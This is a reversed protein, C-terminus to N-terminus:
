KSAAAARFRAIREAFEARRRQLDVLQPGRDADAAAIQHELVGLELELFNLEMANRSAPEVEARMVIQTILNILEEDDRPLGRLPEDLHEALWARGREVLPSSLHEATLRELFERGVAPEKVCMALLTRERRERGSIPPPPPRKPAQAQAQAGTEPESPLQRAGGAVRRRVLAPDADLRNAVERELEDRSITEGMGALVPVVEDLARDRGEPSSLDAEDLVSRVHFTTMEVAADLIESFRKAAADGPAAGALIDAPDEGPPMAAVRMRLRGAGAVRQARLMAERGAHDADLALIVEDTHMNLIKLQDATIATGM